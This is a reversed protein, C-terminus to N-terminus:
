EITITGHQNYDDVIKKNEALIYKQLNSHLKEKSESTKSETEEQKNEEKKIRDQFIGKEEQNDLIQLKQTIEQRYQGLSSCEM